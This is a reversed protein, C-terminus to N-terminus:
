NDQSPHYKPLRIEFLAGLNTNRASISGNMDNIIGYSIAGGLGTGEGVPKTTFFPEFVRDVVDEAIGGGTDEVSIIFADGEVKFRVDITGGRTHGLNIADRANTMLNILVQEYQSSSGNVLAPANHPLDASVQIQSLRLQEQMLDIARFTSEIVDFPEFAAPAVRGFTRMLSVLKSARTVQDDIRDFKGLLFDPKLADQELKRRVNEMTLRIVNLPQNLEHAMGTSMEGLTAMKAAQNLSAEKQRMDTVDTVVLWFGTQKGDATLRQATSLLLHHEVSNNGKITLEHASPLSEKGIHRNITQSLQPISQELVQYTTNAFTKQGHMDISAVGVSVSQLLAEYDSNISRLEDTANELEQTREDVQIKLQENVSGQLALLDTQTNFKEQEVLRFRYGLALSFTVLEFFTGIIFGYRTTFSAELAGISAGALLFYGILYPTQALSYFVGLPNGRLASYVGVGLYSLTLVLSSRVGIKHFEVDIFTAIAVLCFWIVSAKLGIDIWKGLSPSDLLRRTFVVLLAAQIWTAAALPYHQEPTDFFYFTFGSYRAVFFVVFSAHLSYIFYLPDRISAFLFLNFIIIAAAGGFFFALSASQKEVWVAFEAPAQVQIGLIAELKSRQSLLVERSEGAALTVALAPVRTTIGRDPIRTQLGNETTEVNGQSDIIYFNAEEPFAEDFSIVARQNTNGSNFLRFWIWERGGTGAPRIASDLSWRDPPPLEALTLAGSTDRWRLVQLDNIEDINNIDYHPVNSASPTAGPLPPSTQTSAINGIGEVHDVRAVNDINEAVSGAINGAIVVALLVLLMAATVRTLPRHLRTIM